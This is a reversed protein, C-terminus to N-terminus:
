VNRKSDSYPMQTKNERYESFSNFAANVTFKSKRNVYTYSLM